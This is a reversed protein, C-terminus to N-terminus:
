ALDCSWDGISFDSDSELFGGFSVFLVIINPCSWIRVSDAVPNVVKVGPLEGSPLILPFSRIRPREEYHVHWGANGNTDLATLCSFREGYM